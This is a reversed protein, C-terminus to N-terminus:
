RGSGIHAADIHLVVARPAGAAGFVPLPTGVAPGSARLEWRVLSCRVGPRCAPVRLRVEHSQEPRMRGAAVPEAGRTLRWRVAKRAGPAAALTLAVVRPRAAGARDLVMTAPAGRLVAGDPQLGTSTWQALESGDTRYLAYASVPSRAVLRGAFQVRPDDPQAALWRPGAPWRAVGDAGLSTEVVSYGPPVPVVTGNWSVAVTSDPARNWFQIFETGGWPASSSVLGPMVAIDRGTNGQDDLWDQGDSDRGPGLAIGGPVDATGYLEQKFDYNLTLAQAVACLALGAALTPVILRARGRHAAVVVFALMAALGLGILLWGKSDVWLWGLLDDEWGVLRHQVVRTWFAGAPAAFFNGADQAAPAIGEALVYLTAASGAILWPWIRQVMPLGAVAVVAIPTYVYMVYREEIAGGVTSTSVVIVVVALSLLAVLSPIVLRRGLRGCIGALAVGFGLAVPFVFGGVVVGRLYTLVTRWTDGAGDGFLRDLSNSLDLGAYRGALGSGGRIALVGAAAAAALGAVVMLAERRWMGRLWRGLPLESEDRRRMAEAVIVAAFLVVVVFGLNLRCVTLAAVVALAGLQSALSPDQACRVIAYVAWMYLPFALNETLLHSGIMLWPIVTGLAVALVRLAPIEIVRRALLATPVIASVLLVVNLVHSARYATSTPLPGWLPALLTSYLRQPGRDWFPITDFLGRPLHEWVYESGHIYIWEDLYFGDVDGIRSWLLAALGIALVVYGVIEGSM